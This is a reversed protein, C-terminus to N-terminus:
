HPRRGLLAMAAELRREMNLGCSFRAVCIRDIIRGLGEAANLVIFDSVLCGFSARLVFSEDVLPVLLTRQGGLGGIEDPVGHLDGSVRLYEGLRTAGEEVHIQVIGENSPRPVGDTDALLLSNWERKLIGPL